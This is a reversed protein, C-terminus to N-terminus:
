PSDSIATLFYYLIEQITACDEQIAHLLFLHYCILGNRKRCAMEYYCVCIFFSFKSFSTLIKGSFEGNRIHPSMCKGLVFQSVSVLLSSNSCFVILRNSSFSNFSATSDICSGIVQKINRETSVTM